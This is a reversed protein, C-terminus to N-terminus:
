RRRRFRLTLGLLALAGSALRHHGDHQTPVSCACGAAAVPAAGSDISTSADVHSADASVGTDRAGSDRAGADSGPTGGDGGSMGADPGSMGADAAGGADPMGADGCGPMRTHSCTGDTQCADATCADGDGCDLATHSCAGDTQCADATCPDHDDCDVATERCRQTVGDCNPATCADGDVDRCTADSTCCGAIPPAVCTGTPGAGALDCADATCADTDHCDGDGTCCGARATNTCDHTAVDCTDTTCAIGDSCQADSTCCGPVPTSACRNTTTDCRLTVCASAGTCDADARCCGAIPLSSCTGGAGSCRESTCVNGDDACQSDVNCCGTVASHGCGSPEACSDATCANADDCSLMGAQCSGGRCVESGDCVLGDSCSAGDPRAADLPCSGFGDCVEAADCPGTAPRCSTGLPLVSDSPCLADSGTCHEVSDCAGASARCVTPFPTFGDAPCAASVGTCSEPVDCVGASPRCVITSDVFLAQCFATTGSTGRCEDQVDCPDTPAPGCPTGAPEAGDAPCAGSAGTCWEAVDCAGVPARCSTGSSAFVDVCTDVGGACHDRADDDCAGGNSTGTCHTTSEELLDEPCAASSGDCVEAPDCQGLSARCTTGGALFVDVCTNAAGSCHDAGDCAGGTSTGTCSTAASEFACTATCCAGGDCAEGAEVIGNGCVAPVFVYALGDQFVMGPNSDGRPAGVLATDGSVSVSDGFFSLPAAGSASLKSQQIWSGASRVFVYASGCGNGSSCADGRAGVVATDGSVSVSSGFTDSAAADSATLAAQLSWTFGSQVFVYASGSDLTPADDHIAGVVATDGSVAVSWGFYDDAAGGPATLKAQESWSSGSRAFVYAAGSDFAPADARYAGAVATDGSVSVSWGLNDDAAGDSATLKAQETWSSGSRAFVYAAGSDLAPADAQYAGVVATDGSVSVSWGFVDNFAADSATLKAQETWSSGSRVFVYASGCGGGAACDDFPAGVVATDGSVSVSQGFRDNATRDSATLKAQETWSNGSRVFVYASGCDDRPFSPCDDRPAGVVATDGSVAVSSGFYDFSAGDSAALRQQLTWMPDIVVPYRAGEADVELRVVGDAWAMRSPLTRGDADHAYLDRVLVARGGHSLELTGDARLAAAYGEADVALELALTGPSSRPASALTFGQELGLQGHAYWETLAGRRLEVRAGDVNTEAEAVTEGNLRALSVTVVRAGTRDSLSIASGDVSVRLDQSPHAAVLAAGHTAFAYRGDAEAQVSQVFAARLSPDM